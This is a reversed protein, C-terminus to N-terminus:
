NCPKLRKIIAIGDGVEEITVSVREDSKIYQLFERLKLVITRYKHNPYEESMVMGRFLVNDCFIVGGVNLSDVIEQYNSLYKSKPGDIFVLDYRNKALKPLIAGADGLYQSVRGSLSFQAFVEQAEDFRQKDIEITDLTAACHTLMISGSYGIATGIELIRSPRLNCVMEVLREKSDGLIVPVNRERASQEIIDFQESYNM